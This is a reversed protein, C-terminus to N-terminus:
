YLNNGRIKLELDAKNYEREVSQLQECLRDIKAKLAEFENTLESKYVNLESNSLEKVNKHIM